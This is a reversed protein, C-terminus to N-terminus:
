HVSMAFFQSAIYFVGIFNKKAQIKFIVGLYVSFIVLFKIKIAQSNEHRVKILFSFIFFLDNLDGLYSFIYLIM